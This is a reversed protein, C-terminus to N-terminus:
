CRRRRFVLGLGALGLLMLRSPEPVPGASLSTMNVNVGNDTGRLIEASGVATNLLVSKTGLDAPSLNSNDKVVAWQTAGAFSSAPTATNYTGSNFAVVYLQTNAPLSAISISTVSGGITPFDWDLSSPTAGSLNRVDTYGAALLDAWSNITTGFASDLPASSFVGISVAGGTLSAGGSDLFNGVTGNEVHAITVSARLVPAAALFFSLAFFQLVNKM